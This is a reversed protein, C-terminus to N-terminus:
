RIGGNINQMKVGREGLNELTLAISGNINSLEAFGSLHGIELGGNINGINVPGSIEGITAQGNINRVALEAPRPLKLVARHRVNVHGRIEEPPQETYVRFVGGANEVIVKYYQLDERTRASRSVYVEASNGDTTQIELPGNINKVEVQAGPALPYSQRFEDTETLDGRERSREQATALQAIVSAALVTLLVALVRLKM